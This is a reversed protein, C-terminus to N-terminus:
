SSGKRRYVPAADVGRWAQSSKMSDCPTSPRNEPKTGVTTLLMGVLKTM